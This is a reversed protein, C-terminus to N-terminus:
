FYILLINLIKIVLENRFNIYDIKNEVDILQDEIAISFINMDLYSQKPSVTSVFSNNSQSIMAQVKENTNKVIHMIDSIDYKFHTLSSFVFKQFDTLCFNYLFQTSWYLIPVTPKM